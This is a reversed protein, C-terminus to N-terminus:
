VMDLSEPHVTRLAILQPRDRPHIVNLHFLPNRLEVREDNRRFMVAVISVPIFVTNVAVRGPSLRSKLNRLAGIRSDTFEPNGALGAVTRLLFVCLILRLEAFRAHGPGSGVVRDDVGSSQRM